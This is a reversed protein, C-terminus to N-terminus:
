PGDGAMHRPTSPTTRKEDTNRLTRRVQAKAAKTAPRAKITIEEGTQPNRGKRAERAPRHAIKIKLMGPLAFVGPGKKGLERKVLDLLADFVTAVQKKSLGTEDALDQYVQSKPIPKARSVKNDAM